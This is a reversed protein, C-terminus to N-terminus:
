EAAFRFSPATYRDLAQMVKEPGVQGVIVDIDSDAVARRYLVRKGNGNAQRMERRVSALDACKAGTLQRAQKATLHSIALRGTQLEYAVKAQLYPIITGAKLRAAMKKGSIQKVPHTAASTPQPSGNSYLAM